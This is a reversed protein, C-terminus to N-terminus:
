YVYTSLILPSSIFSFHAGKLADASAFNKEWKKKASIHSTVFHAGCSLILADSQSGFFSDLMYSTAENSSVNFLVADHHMTKKNSESDALPSLPYTPKIPVNVRITISYLVLTILM